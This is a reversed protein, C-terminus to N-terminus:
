PSPFLGPTRGRLVAEPEPLLMGLVVLRAMPQLFAPVDLRLRTDDSCTGQYLGPRSAALDRDCGPSFTLRDSELRVRGGVDPLSADVLWGHETPTFTFAVDRGGVSGHAERTAFIHINVADDGIHGGLHNGQLELAVTRGRVQGRVTRATVELSVDRRDSRAIVLQPSPPLQELFEPERPAPEALGHRYGALDLGPVQPPAPAPETSRPQIIRPLPASGPTPGPPPAPPALAVIIPHRDVPAEGRHPAGSRGAPRWWPLAAASAALLLGAGGLVLWRKSRRQQMRAEVARRVDDEVSAPIRVDGASRLLRREEDSGAHLLREPDKM